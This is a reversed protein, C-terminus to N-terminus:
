SLFEILLPSKGHFKEMIRRKMLWFFMVDRTKGICFIPICQYANGLPKYVPKGAQSVYALSTGLSKEGAKQQNWCVMM